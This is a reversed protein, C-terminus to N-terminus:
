SAREISRVRRRFQKRAQVTKKSAAGGGTFFRVLGSNSTRTPVRHLLHGEKWGPGDSRKTPIPRRRLTEHPHRPRQSTQELVDSLVWGFGYKPALKPRERLCDESQQRRWGQRHRRRLDLWFGEWLRPRWSAKTAAPGRASGGAHGASYAFRSPKRGGSGGPACAKSPPMSRTGRGEPFAPPQEKPLEGFRSRGTRRPVYPPISRCKADKSIRRAGRTSRRNSRGRPTRRRGHAIGYTFAPRM